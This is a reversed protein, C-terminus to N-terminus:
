KELKWFEIAGPAGPTVLLFSHIHFAVKRISYGFDNFWRESLAQIYDENNSIKRGFLRTYLDVHLGIRQKAIDAVTVYKPEQAFLEKMPWEHYHNANLNPFDLTILEAPTKGMLEKADGYQADDGYLSKLQRICYPDIDYVKHSKPVLLTDIIVGTMGLGGFHEVVSMGEPLGIMLQEFCRSNKEANKIYRMYSHQTLAEGENMPILELPYKGCVNMRM